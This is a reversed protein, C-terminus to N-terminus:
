GLLLPILVRVTIGFARLTTDFMVVNPNCLGKETIMISLYCANPNSFPNYFGVITTNSVSELNHVCFNVKALDSGM